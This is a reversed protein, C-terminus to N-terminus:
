SAVRADRAGGLPLRALVLERDIPSRVEFSHACSRERGGVWMPHDRGLRGRVGALAADFREHLEAPPNFMTSYTLRFHGPRDM